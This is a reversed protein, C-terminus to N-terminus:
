DIWGDAAFGTPDVAMARALELAKAEGGARVDPDPITEFDAVHSIGILRRIMKAGAFGVAEPWIADVAAARWAARAAPDPMARHPILADEAPDGWLALREARYATWLAHIARGCFAAVAPRDAARSVMALGPQALRALLLNGVLAGVDFGAPGYFAWEADFIRPAPDAAGPDAVVMVSGTHLDGHILCEARTLFIRKLRALAAKLPGDAQLAAVRDDLQPSTWRNLTGPGHPGTFIVEATTATLHANAGFAAARLRMTEPDLASLGTAHHIRALDRGVAPPVGAHILGDVLAGRWVRHRTLGEMAMAKMNTDYYLIEPVAGPAAAAFLRTAAVEADMRDAPFAWDPVARIYPLAQKVAVAGKPGSVLFVHNMNGDGVERGAWAGPAAGLRDALAAAVPAAALWGAVQDVTLIQYAM